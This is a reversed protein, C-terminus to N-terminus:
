RVARRLQVEVLALRVAVGLLAAVTAPIAFSCVGGAASGGGGRPGRGAPGKPGRGARGKPARGAPGSRSM